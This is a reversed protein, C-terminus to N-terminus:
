GIENRDKVRELVDGASALLVDGILIVFDAPGLGNYDHGGLSEKGLYEFIQLSICSVILRIVVPTQLYAADVTGIRLFPM